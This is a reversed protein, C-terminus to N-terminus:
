QHRQCSQYSQCHLPFFLGGLPGWFGYNKHFVINSIPAMGAATAITQSICDIIIAPKDYNEWGTVVAPRDDGGLYRQARWGFM